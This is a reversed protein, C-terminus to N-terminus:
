RNIRVRSVGASIDIELNSRAQGFEKSYYSNGRKELGERELLTTLLPNSSNIRIGVGRPVYLNLDSAGTTISAKMEPEEPFRIGLSSAGSSLKLRRLKIRSFDLDGTCAGARIDVDTVVGSNLNFVWEHRQGPRIRDARDASARIQVTQGSQVASWSPKADYYTLRAEALADSGGSMRVTGASFDVTLSSEAIGPKLGETFAETKLPPLPGLDVPGLRLWPVVDGAFFMGALVLGGIVVVWVSPARGTLLILAGLVILAVPWWKVLVDRWVGYSIWGQNVGLLFAGLLILLIGNWAANSRM